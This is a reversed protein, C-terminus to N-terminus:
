ILLHKWREGRIISRVHSQSVGYEKGLMVSTYERPVYKQRIEIVEEETLVPQCAGVIFNARGKAMMDHTNDWATGVFLHDPNVCSPNDCHHCVLLGKPIPGVLLEYALRHVHTTKDGIWIRGYQKKSNRRKGGHWIWCDGAGNKEVKAWFRKTVKALYKPSFKGIIQYKM